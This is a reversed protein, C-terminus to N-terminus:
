KKGGGASAAFQQSNRAWWIEFEAVTGCTTGSMKRASAQLTTTVAPYATEKYRKRNLDGWEKLLPTLATEVAMDGLATAAAQALEPNASLDRVREILLPVLSGSGNRGMASMIAMQMRPVKRYTGLAGALLGSAVPDGRLWGLNDAAAAPIVFEPDEASPSLFKGLTRVLRPDRVEGVALGRLAAAKAGLMKAESWTKRFDALVSDVSEAHEKAIKSEEAVSGSQAWAVAHFSGLMAAAALLTRM